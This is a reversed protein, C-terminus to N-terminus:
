YKNVNLIIEVRMAESPENCPKSSHNKVHHMLGMYYMTTICPKARPADFRRRRRSVVVADQFWSPAKFGRRRRSVVVADQFWSPTKFGRRRRPVSNQGRDGRM